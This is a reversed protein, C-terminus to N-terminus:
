AAFLLHAASRATQDAGKNNAYPMLSTKEQRSEFPFSISVALFQEICGGCTYLALHVFIELFTTVEFLVVIYNKDHAIM